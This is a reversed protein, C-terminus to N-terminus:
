PWPPLPMASLRVDARALVAQRLAEEPPLDPLIRRISRASAAVAAGDARPAAGLRMGNAASMALNLWLAAAAALAAAFRWTDPRAWWSRRAFALEEGVAALVRGRHGPSPLARIRHRLVEEVDAV